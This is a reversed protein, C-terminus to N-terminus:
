ERIGEGLRLNEEIPDLQVVVVPLGVAVLVSLNPQQKRRYYSPRSFGWAGAEMSLMGTGHVLGVM